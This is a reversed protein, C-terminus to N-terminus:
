PVAGAAARPHRPRRVAEAGLDGRRSWCGSRRGCTRRGSGARAPGTGPAVARPTEGGGPVGGAAGRAAGQAIRAHLSPPRRRWRAHHGYTGEGRGRASSRAGGARPDAAGRLGRVRARRGAGGARAAGTSATRAARAREVRRRLGGRLPPQGRILREQTFVDAHNFLLVAHAPQGDRGARGIEQYYAEVAQPHQRPRRLPHGAQRHGHRLRQHRGGGRGRSAMFTTRPAAGRTTTWAPTTSCRARRGAGRARAHLARPRRAPPATSSARAARSARAAACAEGSTTTARRGHAVELFLNPRDFGAVFVQPDKLLLSASSTRACRPRPPPPSRWPARRGCASACRGSSRTTPGSTTAGSRSATRRTWRSCRGRRM